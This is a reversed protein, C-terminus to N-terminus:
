ARRDAKVSYVPCDAELLVRQATSGLLLKGVPTRHRLGLVIARAGEDQAVRIVRDSPDHLDSVGVRLRVRDAVTDGLIARAGEVTVEGHHEAGALVIEEQPNVIDAAHRLAAHGPPTDAFAVVLTM